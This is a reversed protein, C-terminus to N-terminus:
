RGHDAQIWIRNYRDMLTVIDKDRVDDRKIRLAIATLSRFDNRRIHQMVDVRKPFDKRAQIGVKHLAPHTTSYGRFSSANREAIGEEIKRFFTEEGNELTVKLSAGHFGVIYGEPISIHHTLGGAEDKQDAHTLAHLMTNRINTAPDLHIEGPVAYELRVDQVGDDYETLVEREYPLVMITRHPEGHVSAWDKAASIIEKKQQATFSSDVQILKDWKDPAPKIVTPEPSPDSKTQQWINLGILVLILAFIVGIIGKNKM